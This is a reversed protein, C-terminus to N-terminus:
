IYHLIILLKKIREKKEKFSKHTGFILHVISCKEHRNRGKEEETMYKWYEQVLVGWIKGGGLGFRAKQQWDWVHLLERADKQTNDQWQSRSKERGRTDILQGREKM